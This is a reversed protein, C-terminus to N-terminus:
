RAYVKFEARRNKAWGEQHNEMVAPREKGYSITFLNDPSVGQDMLYDRVTNARRSGLALNYAQPGRQDTHGEIFLYVHPHSQLYSAIQHLTEINQQGKILSCNYEFYITRFLNALKPITAPDEFAEIGPLLSGEEGPTERPQRSLYDAMAVQGEEDELPIFDYEAQEKETYCYPDQMSPYATEQYSQAPECYQDCFGEFDARSRIQRSSDHCGFM